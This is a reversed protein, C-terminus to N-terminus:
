VNKIRNFILLTFVFLMIATFSWSISAGVVDMHKVLLYMSGLKLPMVLLRSLSKLEPRGVSSFLKNMLMTLGFFVGGALLINSYLYSKAFENGYILVILKEGVLAFLGWGICYLLIFLGFSKFLTKIRSKKTERILKPVIIVGISAAVFDFMSIIAEAVSYVGLAEVSIFNALILIDFKFNLRNIVGGVFERAGYWMGIKLTRFDFNFVKFSVESRLQWWAFVSSCLTSILVAVIVYEVTCIDLFVGVLLVVVYIFASILIVLNYDTFRELGRLFALAHVKFSAFFLQLLSIYVVFETIGRYYRPKIWTMFAVAIVLVISATLFWVLITNTYLISGNNKQNIKKNLYYTNAMPLGFDLFGILGLFSLAVAVQGKGEAGLTRAVIIGGALHLIYGLIKTSFVKYFVLIFPNSLLNSRLYSIRNIIDKYLM